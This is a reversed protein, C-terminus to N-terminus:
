YWYAKFTACVENKTTYQVTYVFIQDADTAACLVKPM